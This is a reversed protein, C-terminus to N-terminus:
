LRFIVHDRFIMYVYRYKTTQVRAALLVYSYNYDTYNSHHNYNHCDVM